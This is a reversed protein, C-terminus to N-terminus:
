RRRSRVARLNNKAMELTPDAAVARQFYQQALDYNKRRLAIVGLGNHAMAFEPALKITTLYDQEAEADKNLSLFCLARNHFAYAYAPLSELAETQFAVCREFENKRFALVGLNTLAEARILESLLKPSAELSRQYYIEAQTFDDKEMLWNGRLNLIKPDNPSIAEALKLPKDAETLLGLRVLAFAQNQLNDVKETFGLKLHEIAKEHKEAGIYFRALNEHAEKSQPDLRLLSEWLTISNEWDPLRSWSLNAWIALLIVAFIRLTAAMLSSPALLRSWPWLLGFQSVYLYRDSVPTDDGFPVLKILPAMTVLFFAMGFIFDNRFVKSRQAMILTAVAWVGLFALALNSPLLDSATYYIKLDSPWVTKSLYFLIQQPARLLRASLTLAEPTRVQMQSFITLSTIVLSMSSLFTMYLFHRKVWDHASRFSDLRYVEILLLLVPLIVAFPKALLSLFALLFALLYRKQLHTYLAWWFFAASVVDKREAIWAFSEVHTPHWAFAAALFGATWLSNSLNLSFFFVGCIGFLHFLLNTLHFVGPTLGGSLQADLWYTLNTLPHYLGAVPPLLTQLSLPKLLSANHQVLYPDDLNVFDFTLLESFLLFTSVVIFTLTLLTRQKRSM